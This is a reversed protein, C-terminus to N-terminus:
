EKPDPKSYRWGFGGARPRKGQCVAVINQIGTERKAEAMSPYIKIVHGDTLDIQEVFVGNAHYPAIDEHNGQDIRWMYGGASKNVSKPNLSAGIHKIDPYASEAETISTYSRLYKGDMSYQNVPIRKVRPVKKAVPIFADPDDKYRWIFGGATVHDRKCSKIIQKSSVGTKREAEAMSDFEAILKYSVPDIQLVERGNVHLAPIDSHDGTDYKWQFGGSSQSVTDEDNLVRSIAGAGPISRKAAAISTFTRIYKGDLDYQNVPKVGAKNRQITKASAQAATIERIKLHEPSSIEYLEDKINYRHMEPLTKFTYGPITTKGSIYNRVSAITVHFAKAASSISEFFNVPEDHYYQIVPTVLSKGSNGGEYTNYGFKPDTSKYQKILSEELKCAEEETLNEAIIQHKINEWRYKKIAKWFRSQTEYGKGNQWRRETSQHTIGIYVKNNPTTHKYVLYSSDHTNYDRDTVQSLIFKRKSICGCTKTKGAVLGSGSVLKEGGCDCICRYYTRGNGKYNPLREIATLMGFREGTHDVASNKAPAERKLCGCSKTSGNTLLIGLVVAENGCSCSCRWYVKHKEDIHDIELATLRGFHQGTLDRRHGPNDNKVGLRQAISLIQKKTAGPFWKSLEEYNSSPYYKRIADLQAESYKM